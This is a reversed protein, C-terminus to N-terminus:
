FVEAVIFGLGCALVTFVFPAGFIEKFKQRAKEKKTEEDEEGVVEQEHEVWEQETYGPNFAWITDTQCAKDYDVKRNM